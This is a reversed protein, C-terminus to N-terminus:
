FNAGLTVAFTTRKSFDFDQAKQYDYDLKVYANVDADKKVLQSYTLSAGANWADCMLYNEELPMLKTVTPYSAYSGNYSYEGSTANKMGGRVEALLRRNMDGKLIINKKFDVNIYINKSDMTSKPLIFEDDKNVLDISADARWSYEDDNSRIISYKAHFNDTKYTSRIDSHLTIWGQYNETNDRQSLYQIGDISRHTYGAALIHKFLRGQKEITFRGGIVKDNTMADKKPTTFSIEVNEVCRNWFFEGLINWGDHEHNYQLGFGWKNGFYNTTRGTGLGSSAVGLGYMEYYTQDVYDNSKTMSSEEKISSYIMNAGIRNYDGLAVVVGPMLRLNYYRTDTRPDRQKASLSAKYTGDIGFSFRKWVVPTSARFRLHYHQNRWDSALGDDVVYYPQGRYPDTISANFLADDANEHTFDFEGWVLSSGLNVFGESYINLNGTKEGTQAPKFNGSSHDYGIRLTSYNKQSEFVAGAANQSGFWLKSEKQMELAAPSWGKSEQAAVPAAANMMAIALFPTYLIKSNMKNM